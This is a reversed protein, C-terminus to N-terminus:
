WQDHMKAATVQYMVNSYLPTSAQQHHHHNHKHHYNDNILLITTTAKLQNEGIMKAEYVNVKLTVQTASFPIIIPFPIEFCIYQKCVLQHKDYPKIYSFFYQNFISVPATCKQVITQNSYYHKQDRSHSVNLKFEVFTNTDNALVSQTEKM